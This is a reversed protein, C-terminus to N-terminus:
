RIFRKHGQEGAARARRATPAPLAETAGRPKSMNRFGRPFTPPPLRSTIQLLRWFPDLFPDLIPGFQRWFPERCAESSRKASM